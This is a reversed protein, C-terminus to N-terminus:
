PGKEKPGGPAVVVGVKSSASSSSKRRFGFRKGHSHEAWRLEDENTLNPRRV